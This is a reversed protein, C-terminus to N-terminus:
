ATRRSARFSLVLCRRSCLPVPLLMTATLLTPEDYHYRIQMLQILNQTVLSNASLMILHFPFFIVKPPRAGELRPSMEDLLELAQAPRGGRPRGTHLYHHRGEGSTPPPTPRRNGGHRRGQNSDPPCSRRVMARVLLPAVGSCTSPGALGLRIRTARSQRFALHFHKASARAAATKNAGM